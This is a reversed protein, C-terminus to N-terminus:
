LSMTRYIFYTKENPLSYEATARPLNLRNICTNRSPLVNKENTKIFFLSPYLKFGLVPEKATGTIFKLIGGLDVKGRRGGTISM